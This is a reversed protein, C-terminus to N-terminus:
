HGLAPLLSHSALVMSKPHRTQSESLLISPHSSCPLALVTLHMDALVLPTVQLSTPGLDVRVLLTVIVDNRDHWAPVLLTTTVISWNVDVPLHSWDVLGPIARQSRLHIKLITHIGGRMDSSAIPMHMESGYKPSLSGHGDPSHWESSGVNTTGRMCCFPSAYQARNLMTICCLQKPHIIVVWETTVPAQIQM